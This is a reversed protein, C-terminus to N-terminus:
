HCGWFWLGVLIVTGSRPSPTRSATKPHLNSAAEGAEELLDLRYAIAFIDLANSRIYSRLEKGMVKIAHPFEYKIAAATLDTITDINVSPADIPYCLRLLSEWIEDSEPVDLLLSHGDKSPLFMHKFYPSAFAPIVKQVHFEVGFSSEMQLDPSSAADDTNAFPHLPASNNNNM